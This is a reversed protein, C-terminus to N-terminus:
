KFFIEEQLPSSKVVVVLSRINAIVDLITSVGDSAILNIIHAVCRV